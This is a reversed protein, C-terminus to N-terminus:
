GGKSAVPSLCAPIRPLLADLEKENGKLLTRVSFGNKPTDVSFSLPGSWERMNQFSENIASEPIAGVLQVDAMSLSLDRERSTAKNTKVEVPVNVAPGSFEVVMREFKSQHHHQFRFKKITLETKAFGICSFSVFLLFLKMCHAM